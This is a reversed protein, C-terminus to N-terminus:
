TQRRQPRRRSGTRATPSERSLAAAPRGVGPRRQIDTSASADVPRARPASARASPAAAGDRAAGARSRGPSPARGPRRCRARAEVEALHGDRAAGDCSRPRCPRRVGVDAPAIPAVGLQGRQEVRQKLIRRPVAASSRRRSRAARRAGLRRPPPGGGLARRRRPDLEERHDAALVSRHQGPKASGTARCGARRGPRARRRHRVGAPDDLTGAAISAGAGSCRPSRRADTQRQEVELRREPEVRGRSRGSPRRTAATGSRRAGTTSGGLAARKASTASAALAHRREAGEVGAGVLVRVARRREDDLDAASTAPVRAGASPGPCRPRPAGRRRRRAPPTRSTADGVM